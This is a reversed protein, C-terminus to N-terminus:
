STDDHYIIKVPHKVGNITIGGQKNVWDVWLDYGQQTLTSEKTLAGTLGLPAGFTITDGTTTATGGSTAGGCAFTVMAALAFLVFRRRM